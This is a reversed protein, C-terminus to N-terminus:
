PKWQAVEVGAEKLLEIGDRLRYEEFYVFKSIGAAVLLAACHACTACTCYMAADRTPAGARAAFCIANAEAHTVRTCGNPYIPLGQEDESGGCGVEICHPMGPPAGNYGISIVRSEVAIVAGVLKRPCTGRHSVADATQMLMEDRSIRGM